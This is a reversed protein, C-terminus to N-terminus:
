EPPPDGVSDYDGKALLTTNAHAWAGWRKTWPKGWRKFTGDRQAAMDSIGYAAVYWCALLVDCRRVGYEDAVDEVGEGAWVMDAVNEVAVGTGGIRPRGFRVAPDIEICPRDGNMGVM